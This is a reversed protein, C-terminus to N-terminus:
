CLCSAQAVILRVTGEGPPGQPRHHLPPRVSLYHGQRASARPRLRHLRQLGPGADQGRSNGHRTRRDQGLGNRGQRQRRRHLRLLGEPLPRARREPQHAAHTRVRHRYRRTNRRAHRPARPDTLLTSVAQDLTATRQPVSVFNNSHTDWGGLNVEVFRVDNELLRRALLAGQGFSNNGYAERVKADEKSLDFAKLDESRMLKVADEYMDKQARVDKQNYTERFKKNFANTLALRDDFERETMGESLKSNKLGENPNGLQLPAFKSEMFGAGGAGGGGVRVAAPLTRNTKGDLRQIWAGLGPHKITGRPSYSTHMYYNGQAHAGQTSTLSRVIAAKDMHQAIGPLYESIFVGDVNTPIAEVPGGVESGPKPDFTDIHTMGGSMYLYIVNRATPRKRLTSDADAAAFIDESMAQTLLGVGLTSGATMRMFHRRTSEDAKFLIDKM